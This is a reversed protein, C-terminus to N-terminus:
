NKIKQVLASETKNKELYKQKEIVAEDQTAFLGFSVRYWTKGSVQASFVNAQYGMEKLKNAKKEADVKEAGTHVLKMAGFSAIIDLLEMAKKGNTGEEPDIGIIKGITSAAQFPFDVIDNVAEKQKEPLLEAASKVGVVVENFANAEPIAAFATEALGLTTTLGGSVFEGKAIEKVGEGVTREGKVIGSYWKGIPNLYGFKGLKGEPDGLVFAELGEAITNMQDSQRQQEAEGEAQEGIQGVLAENARNGPEMKKAEDLHAKAEDKLGLQAKSYALGKQANINAPDAQLAQNYYDISGEYDRKSSLAYGIGYLSNSPNTAASKQTKIDGAMDAQQTSNGMDQKDPTLHGLTANFLDIAQDYKGMGTLGVATKYAADIDNPNQNVKPANEDVLRKGRKSQLAREASLKLDEIQANSYGKSRLTNFYIDRNRQANPNSDDFVPNNLFQNRTKEKLVDVQGAKVASINDEKTPKSISPIGSDSPSETSGSELPGPESSSQSPESDVKKKLIPLGDETVDSGKKLIPLGDETQNEEM